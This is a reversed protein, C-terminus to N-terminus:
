FVLDFELEEIEEVEEVNEPKGLADLIMKSYVKSLETTQNYKDYCQVIKKNAIDVEACVVSSRSANAIAYYTYKYPNRWKTGLCHHCEIGLDVMEKGTKIRFQELTEPANPDKFMVCDGPDNRGPCGQKHWTICEQM